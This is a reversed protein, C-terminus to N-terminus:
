CLYFLEHTRCVVQVAMWVDCFISFLASDGVICVTIARSISELYAVFTIAENMWRLLFWLVSEARSCSIWSKKAGRTVVLNVIASSSNRALVAAFININCM